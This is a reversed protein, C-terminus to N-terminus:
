AETTASEASGPLRGVYRARPRILHGTALQELAHAIWGVTRGMAFLALARGAPLGLSHCLAVLGFDLNPRVELLQAAEEVLEACVRPLTGSVELLCRGRPDGEPYLPHAFGPIEQGERMRRLIADRASSAQAEAVLGEVKTCHGGHRHGSLAGLGAAVLDYPTAGASAVCRATFASVNLEHDACLILAAELQARHGPAWADALREALAPSAGTGGALGVLASLIRAGSARIGHPRLDFGRPDHQGLWPLALRFAETPPLGQLSGLWEGGLRPQQPQYDGWLLTIVEEWAKEQALRCVDQGRYYLRGEHILTLSSECLPEGWSLAGALARSTQARDQRRAVLAEVDDTDYRRRRKGEEGHPGQVGVYAYLTPLSVGLRLAAQQATLHSTSV